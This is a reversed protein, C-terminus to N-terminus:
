PLQAVNLRDACGGGGISPIINDDDYGTVAHDPRLPIQDSIAPPQPSLLPQQVM